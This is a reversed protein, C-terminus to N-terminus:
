RCFGDSGCIGSCCDRSDRCRDGSRACRCNNNQCIRSCCDSDNNCFDGKDGCRCQTNRCVGSCCGNDRQCRQGEGARKCTGRNRRNNRRKNRVKCKFSCCDNDRTCSADNVKCTREANQALGLGAQALSLLAAAAGALGKVATRRDSTGAVSRTRYDFRCNDLSGGESFSLRAPRTQPPRRLGSDQGRRQM